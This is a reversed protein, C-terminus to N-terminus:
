DQSVAGFRPSFARAANAAARLLMFWGAFAVWLWALATAQAGASLAIDGTASSLAAVPGLGVLPARNVVWWMLWGLAPLYLVLTVVGLKALYKGEGAGILVGDLVFVVGSIPMLLGAVLLARGAVMHMEADTGFLWPIWPSAVAVVVGIIAAASLGWFSLRRVLARLEQRRGAGLAVGVMSQAAIALADLAFAAIMWISNVVQHGALALTGSRTAVAVTALLAIRLSVTRIFLPFGEGAASLVGTGSPLLGVGRERAGKVVRVVLMTAMLTQTISLGIGAGLIGLGLGYILIANLVVNIVSGIALVYLPTKMDLLGRLTGTAALIVLMGIMGFAAARLYTAAEVAVAGEAGMVNALWPAGAVLAVALVAGLGAGLWMAEIGGRIGQEPRGSGLARATVATTSYALFVFVGVLTGLITSALSLAALPVTGLHGVMVSDILILLPEIVLAGLAPVALSLIGRASSDLKPPPTSRGPDTGGPRNAEAEASRSAPGHPASESPEPVTPHRGPDCGDPGNVEPGASRHAPDHSRSSSAEPVAPFETPLRGSQGENEGEISPESNAESEGNLGEDTDM